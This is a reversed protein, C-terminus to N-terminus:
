EDTWKLDTYKLLVATRSFCPVIKRKKLLSDFKSAKLYGYQITVVFGEETEKLSQKFARLKNIGLRKAHKLIREEVAFYDEYKREVGLLSYVNVVGNRVYAPSSFTRGDQSVWIQGDKQLDIYSGDKSVIKKIIKNKYKM